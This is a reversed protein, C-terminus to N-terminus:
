SSFSFLFISSQIHAIGVLYTIVYKEVPGCNNSKPNLIAKMILRSYCAHIMKHTGLSISPVFIHVKLLSIKLEMKQRM